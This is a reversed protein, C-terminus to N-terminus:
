SDERMWHDRYKERWIEEQLLRQASSGQLDFEPTPQTWGKCGTGSLDVPGEYYCYTESGPYRVVMEYCEGARAHGMGAVNAFLSDEDFGGDHSFTPSGALGAGCGVLLLPKNDEWFFYRGETFGGSPSWEPSTFIGYPRIDYTM